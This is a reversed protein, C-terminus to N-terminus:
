FLTRSKQTSLTVKELGTRKRFFQYVFRKVDSEVSTRVSVLERLVAPNDETMRLVIIKTPTESRM